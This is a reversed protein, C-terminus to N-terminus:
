SANEVSDRIKRGTREGIEKTTRIKGGGKKKKGGRRREEGGKEERKGEGKEEREKRRQVRNRAATERVDETPM